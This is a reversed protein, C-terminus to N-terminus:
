ITNEKWSIFHEGSSNHVGSSTILLAYLSAQKVTGTRIKIGGNELGVIGIGGKELGVIGLSGWLVVAGVEVKYTVEVQDGAVAGGWVEVM